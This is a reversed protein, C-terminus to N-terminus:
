RNHGNLAARNRAHKADKGKKKPLPAVGPIQAAGVPGADSDPDGDNDGTGGADAPDDIVEPDESDAVAEGATVMNLPTNYDDAWPENIRNLGEMDRCDNPSLITNQRGISYTKFRSESDGRLLKQEYFDLEIAGRDPRGAIESDSLLGCTFENEWNAFWDDMCVNVFEISQQEINSFTARSLEAIMHPPVGFLRAIDIAQFQRTQLFQMDEPPIGVEHFQGGEELVGLKHAGHLGGYLDNLSEQINKAATPSLANPYSVWGGLHVGQGFYRAGYEEASLALSLSQRNAAIPGLGKVGDTELGRIHLIEQSRYTQKQGNPTTYIYILGSVNGNKDAKEKVEMKDPRMPWLEVIQGRGNEIIQAYANGWLLVRAQMLRKFRYATMFPNAKVMLLTWLYQDRALIKGKDTRRYPMFPTRAIAGSIISVCRWVAALQLSTIESVPKGAYTKPIEFIRDWSTRPNELSQGPIASPNDDRFLRGVGSDIALSQLTEIM